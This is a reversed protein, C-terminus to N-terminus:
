SFGGEKLLEPGMNATTPKPQHPSPISSIGVFPQALRADPPLPLSSPSAEAMPSAGPNVLRQQLQVLSNIEQEVRSLREQASILQSVEAHLKTREQIAQALRNDIEALAKSGNHNPSVKPKRHYARKTKVEEDPM